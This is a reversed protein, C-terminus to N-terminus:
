KLRYIWLTWSAPCYNSWSPTRLTFKKVHPALWFTPIADLVISHKIYLFGHSHRTGHHDSWTALSWSRWFCLYLLTAHCDSPYWIRYYVYRNVWERQLHHMREPVLIFQVSILTNFSFRPIFALNRLPINSCKLVLLCVFPGKRYRDLHLRLSQKWFPRVLLDLSFLSLVVNLGMM